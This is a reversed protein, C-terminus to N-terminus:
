EREEIISSAKKTGANNRCDLADTVDIWLRVAFYTILVSLVIWLPVYSTELWRDFDEWM